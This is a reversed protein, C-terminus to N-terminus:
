GTKRASAVFAYVQEQCWPHYLTLNSTQLSIDIGILWPNNLTVAM